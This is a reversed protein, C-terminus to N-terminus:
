LLNIYHDLIEQTCRAYGCEVTTIYTYPVGTLISFTKRNLGKAERVSILWAPNPRNVKGSGGCKICKVPKGRVGHQYQSYHESHPNTPPAPSVKGVGGCKICPYAVYREVM